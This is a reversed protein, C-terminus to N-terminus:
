LFIYVGSLEAESNKPITMQLAAKYKNLFKFKREEKTGDSWTIVLINDSKISYNGKKTNSDTIVPNKVIDLMQTIDKENKFFISISYTNTSDQWYWAAIINKNQSYSITSFFILAVILLLNKM